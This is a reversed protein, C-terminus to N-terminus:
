KFKGYFLVLRDAESLLYLAKLLNQLIILLKMFEHIMGFNGLFLFFSCKLIDKAASYIILQETEENDDHILVSISLNFFNQISKNRFHLFVVM